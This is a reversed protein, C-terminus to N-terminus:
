DHELGHLTWGRLPGPMQLSPPLGPEAPCPTLPHASILSGASLHHHAVSDTAEGGQRGVAPSVSGVSLSLGAWPRARRGLPQSGQQGSRARFKGGQLRARTRAGEQSSREQRMGFAAGGQAGSFTRPYSGRSILCGRGEGVTGQLFPVQSRRM